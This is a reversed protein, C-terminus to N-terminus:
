GRASQKRFLESLNAEVEESSTNTDDVEDWIRVHNTEPLYLSGVV